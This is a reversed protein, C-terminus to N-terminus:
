GPSTAPRDGSPRSRGSPTMERSASRRPGRPWGTRPPRPASSGRARPRARGPGSRDRGARRRGGGRGLLTIGDAALTDEFARGYYHKDAILTQGARHESLTPDAALIGAPGVTRRGQRRLRRLRGVPRAPHVAPAAPAGLLLPLPQRLLRIRGLRGARFPARDGALPRMRGTHLRGGM